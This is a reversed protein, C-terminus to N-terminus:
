CGDIFGRLYDRQSQHPPVLRGMWKNNGGHGKRHADNVIEIVKNYDLDYLSAMLCCTLLVSRGRGHECHIYVKSNRDIFKLIKHILHKMTETPVTGDRIPFRIVNPASYFAKPFDTLDVFVTFRKEILKNVQSQNPYKGFAIRGHCVVSYFTLNKPKLVDKIKTEGSASSEVKTTIGSIQGIIPVLDEKAESSTVMERQVEASEPGNVIEDTEAKEPDIQKLSDQSELNTTKGPKDSNFSDLYKIKDEIAPINLTQPLLSSIDSISSSDEIDM